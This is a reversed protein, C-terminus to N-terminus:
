LSSLGEPQYNDGTFIEGTRRWEELGNRWIRRGVYRRNGYWMEEVATDIGTTRCRRWQARGGSYEGSIKDAMGMIGSFRYARLNSTKGQQYKDLGDGDKCGMEGDGDYWMDDTTIGCRKRRRIWGQQGVYGGGHEDAATKM